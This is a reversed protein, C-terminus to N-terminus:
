GSEPLDGHYRRDRAAQAEEETRAEEEQGAGLGEGEQPGVEHGEAEEVEGLVEERGCVVVGGEGDVGEEEVVARLVGDRGEGAPEFKGRLVPEERPELRGVRVERQNSREQYPSPLEQALQGHRLGLGVEGVRDHEPLPLAVPQHRTPHVAPHPVGGVHPPEVPAQPGLDEEAVREAEDGVCEGRPHEKGLARVVLLPVQDLEELLLVHIVLLPHPRPQGENPTEGQLLHPVRKRGTVQIHTTHTPFSPPPEHENTHTSHKWNTGNWSTCSAIHILHWGANKHM